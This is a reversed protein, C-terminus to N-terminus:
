KSQQENSREQEQNAAEAARFAAIKVRYDQLARDTDDAIAERECVGCFVATVGNRRERSLLNGCRCRPWREPPAPPIDKELDNAAALVPASQHFENAKERLWEVIAKREADLAALLAVRDVYVAIDDDEDGCVWVIKARERIAELENSDM